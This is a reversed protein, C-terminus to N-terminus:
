EDAGKRDFLRKGPNRKSWEAWRRNAEAMPTIRKVKEVKTM